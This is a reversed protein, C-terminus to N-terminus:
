SESGASCGQIERASVLMVSGSRGSWGRPASGARVTDLARGGREPRRTGYWRKIACDNLSEQM